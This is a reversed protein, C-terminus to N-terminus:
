RKEAAFYCLGGLTLIMLSYKYIFTEQSQMLPPYTTHTLNEALTENENENKQTCVCLYVCTCLSTCTNHPLVNVHKLKMLARGKTKVPVTMRRKEEGRIVTPCMM